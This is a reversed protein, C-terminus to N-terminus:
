LRSAVFVVMIVCMTDLMGHMHRVDFRYFNSIGRLTIRCDENKEYTIQKPSRDGGWNEKTIQFGKISPYQNQKCIQDRM